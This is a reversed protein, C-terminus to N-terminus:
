TTPKNRTTAASALTPHNTQTSPPPLNISSVYKGSFWEKDEPPLVHGKSNVSVEDDDDADEDSDKEVEELTTKYYPKGEFHIAFKPYHKRHNCVDCKPVGDLTFGEGEACPREIFIPRAFLAKTFEVTWQTSVFKSKAYGQYEDDLKTFAQTYVEDDRSFAPNIKRHVMWEIADKFHEKLPKHAAHRFQLPIEHLSHYPVGIPADDDEVIFDSDEPLHYSDVNSTRNKKKPKQVVGHESEDEFNSLMALDSDTDYLGRREEDSEETSDTLEDINEGARKRKLLQIQKEKATRHKRGKSQRTIRAPTNSSSARGSRSKGKSQTKRISPLESDDSDDDAATAEDNVQLRRKRPLSPIDSDDTDVAAPRKRNKLFSSIPEEDSEEDEQVSVRPRHRTPSTLIVDEDSEDEAEIAQGNSKHNKPSLFYRTLKRTLPLDADSEDDDPIISKRQKRSPSLIPLDDLDDLELALPEKKALKSVKGNRSDKPIPVSLEDDSGGSLTVSKRGRAKTKSASKTASAARKSKSSRDPLVPPDDREGGDEDLDRPSLDFAKQKGKKNKSKNKSPTEIEDEDEPLSGDAEDLDVLPRGQRRSSSTGMKTASARARISPRHEPLIM